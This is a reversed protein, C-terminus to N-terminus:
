AVTRFAVVSNHGGFGFSNSIALLPGDGLPRPSTVVDLPIAEDQNDLNITPPATREHLALITFVAELAGTGGLLHGTSAKTASVPISSVRDGFVRKLAEYEAIDGVPTSTAHANIHSVEDPTAGAQKLAALVARAAGSGEPDPATIHYSDSTVSGGALEAYIRAGRALAHEKTELVVAAAGEGLVFGDRDVDYPRSAAAPDDNRKSLAQMSAFAAIPLPHVVAETGGAIVIDALGLQLHEYANAIAETGSACASVVTRAGARARLHMSIAAAAANPMLMPITMPLVRRPGKEKLVDWADLLTWLGGIGTAYDVLIREPTIDPAGADAWAERAAILAYQASPDLRKIEQRELVEEPRVKAEAAFTVPLEHQAVWDYALTRAGSEGRLLADWSERATGGIPSTAGIGTVVITTM